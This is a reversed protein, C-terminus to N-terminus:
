NPENVFKFDKKKTLHGNTKNTIKFYFLKQFCNDGMIIQIDQDTM